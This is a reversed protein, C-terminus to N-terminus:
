SLLSFIFLLWAESPGVSELDAPIPLLAKRPPWCYGCLLVQSDLYGPLNRPIRDWLPPHGGSRDLWSRRCQLSFEEMM